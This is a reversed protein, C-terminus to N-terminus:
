RTTPLFEFLYPPPSSRNINKLAFSTEGTRPDSHKTMVTMQLDPSYWREDVIDIPKDNGIAGAPITTTTRTGQAQVGEISMNGLQETKTDGPGTLRTSGATVISSVNRPM